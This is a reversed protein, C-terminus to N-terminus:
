LFLLFGAVLQLTFPQNKNVFALFSLKIRIPQTIPNSKPMFASFKSKKYTFLSGAMFGWAFSKKYFFKAFPTVLNEKVERKM